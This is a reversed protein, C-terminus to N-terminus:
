FGAALGEKRHDSAGCYGDDLCAILQAGGFLDASGADRVSHGLSALEEKTTQCYGEELVLEYQPTVHWRPADSAAQPNENHDFIRSVMQVHGQHQMHGGMVGFALEPRDNHTVFGPIITHFPKKSPGVQNPHGAKLTFGAGRNQMAIGTGEIVVGSGFGMYNSQIYSVMNGDSDGTCLYVTDAGVRLDPPPLIASGRSISDAARKLTSPDLLCEPEIHMANPDAFHEFAARIAVKMSEVQLHTWVTSGPEFDRVGLRDLLGLAILAALGQGNPPIEHVDVSGYSLTLPDCWEARHAALDELRMLGGENKAQAVILKALNGRYFSEGHTSAVEELTRALEGSQFVEGTAPARGRPLFHNRFSSFKQFRTESRKWHYATRRGVHFGNEAYQIAADFLRAFPLKGFRASLETWASVAGPVTVSHWGRDPMLKHNSFCESNWLRPSKGSANLGFLSNDFWVLAFADSGIGNSCPEVVSLTIAAALAADIANGGERLARIGAQTALPQSTAVVNRALVPDRQSAYPLDWNLSDPRM